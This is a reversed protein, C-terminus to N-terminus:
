IQSPPLINYTFMCNSNGQDCDGDLYPNSISFKNICACRYGGNEDDADLCKNDGCAYREPDKQAITCNPQDTIITLLDASTSAVTTENIEDSLLDGLTFNYHYTAYEESLFVKITSANAVEFPQTEERQIISVRFARVTRRVTVVCCGMGSCAKGEAEKHMMAMDTCTSFCNGLVDETDPDVLYVEIGCGVAVLAHFDPRISLIRDPSEWTRNYTGMVGPTTAINFSVSAQVYGYTYQDVIKTTTGNTTNALLLLKPPKTSHDCTLEFGPRFCGAGVGYPYSINADGCSKLCHALKAATPPAGSAAQMQMAAAIVLCMLVLLRMAFLLTGAAASM